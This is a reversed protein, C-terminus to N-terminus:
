ETKKSTAAPKEFKWEGRVRVQGPELVVERARGTAIVQTDGLELPGTTGAPLHVPDLLDDITIQLDGTASLKGGTFRGEIENKEPVARLELKPTAQGKSTVGGPGVLDYDLTVLVGQPTVKVKPHTLTLELTVTQSFGLLEMKEKVTRHYPAAAQLLDQLMQEPIVLEMPPASPAAPSAAVVAALLLSSLM